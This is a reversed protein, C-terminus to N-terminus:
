ILMDLQQDISTINKSVFDSDIIYDYYATGRSPITGMMLKGAFGGVPANIGELAANKLVTTPAGLAMRLFINEYERATIGSKHLSTVRGAHAMQDSYLMIHRLNSVKDGMVDRVANVIQQRAAVIGFHREVEDISSSVVNRFMSYTALGSLNSGSTQISLHKDRKQVSGDKAIIHRIGTVVRADSIGSVGRLPADLIANIYNYVFEDTLTKKEAVSQLLYVRIIIKPASEPTSVIYTHPIAIRLSNVVEELSTKKLILDGRNLEIRYCWETINAPLQTLLPNNQAFERMWKIDDAYGPYMNKNNATPYEEYLLDWGNLLSRATLLMIHNAVDRMVVMDDEYSGDARVVDMLMSPSREENLKKASFIEKPRLVAGEKSTGGMVSRHHSDLMYQTLPESVAQAALIGVSEGPSILCRQYAVEIEALALKLDASSIGYKKLLVSCCEARILMQTLSTAPSFFKGNDSKLEKQRSNLYVYVLDACAEKVLRVSIKLDDDDPTTESHYQRLITEVDIPATVSDSFSESMTSREVDLFVKRYQDRDRLIRDFEDKDVGMYKEKMAADSLFAPRYKIGKQVRRADLGDGGYLHQVIYPSVVGRLPDTVMSQHACIAERNQQGTLSTNMAKTILDFRGNMACFAFSSPSIGNIYGDPVFGYAQASLEGRAMNVITRGSSGPSIRKADVTQQGVAAMIGVQNQRKGKSGTVILMNLGNTEPDIDQLIEAYISDPMQLISTQQREYYELMTMDLPPILEGNVLAQNINESEALVTKVHEEIRALAEKSLIMDAVSISCGEIKLFQAAMQQLDFTFQMAAEMGYQRAIKHIVGGNAGQGVSKKDLVGSTMKGNRIVTMLERPDYETYMAGIDTIFGPKREYSIPYHRLLMSVAEWGSFLYEAPYESLDPPSTVTDQFLSLLTRRNMLTKARTMRASGITGDQVTGIVPMSNKTSVVHNTVSSLILAEVRVGPTALAFLNMEDGDFDSGYLVCCGVNKQMTLVGLPMIKVKHVGFSTRELTPQRNITVSDGDILDRYLVDGIELQYQMMRSVDHMSQTSKRFIQTSGPYKRRGNRYFPMLFDINYDQVTEAVQLIRAFDQSIGISNLPITNKGSLTTRGINGVRAGLLNQRFRGKKGMLRTAISSVPRGGCTLALKEGGKKSSGRHLDYISQSLLTMNAAVNEPINGYPIPEPLRDNIRIIMQFINNIDHYSQSKDGPNANPVTPRITVPPIQLTRCILHRPHSEIPRGLAAVVDDSVRNFITLMQDPFLVSRQGRFSIFTTFHDETSSIYQPQEKGCACVHTDNKNISSAAVILRRNKPTRQIKDSTVDIIPAGCAYCIIILWRRAEEIYLPMIVGSKLDYSGAHGPCDRGRKCTVCRYRLGTSGMTLDIVGGSKPLDGEFLVPYRVKGVSSQQRDKDNQVSCIVYSVEGFQAAMKARQIRSM